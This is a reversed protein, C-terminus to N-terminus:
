SIVPCGAPTNFIRANNLYETTSLPLMRARGAGLTSTVLNFRHLDYMRQGEVFLVALRENLLATQAAAASTPVTMPALGVASRDINLRATMTTYDGRRFYVEAEILNMERKTLMPVDGGRDSYKTIGYYAFRNNVGLEGAKRNVAMRPDPRATDFWDPLHNTTFTATNSTGLVMSHWRRRLGGSRNRNQHFQNGTTSQQVGSGENYVALKVFGAGVAQADALAADFNGALLNARARAARTANVWATRDAGSLGEATTLTRTLKAVAQTFFKTNPERLGGNELPGECWGMGILLDAMGQIWQTQATLPSTTAAGELVRAVRAEANEAAFRSQLLQNQPGSFSGASPWNGRVRGESIDEWDIWTSTSEIVDGLLETVVIFDDFAQHLLGEAGDAVSKLIAPTNLDDDGFAQPDEVDLIGDCAVTTAMLAAAGYRVARRLKRSRYSFQPM